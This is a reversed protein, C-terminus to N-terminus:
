SLGFLTSMATPESAVLVYVLSFRKLTALEAAHQVLHLSEDVHM